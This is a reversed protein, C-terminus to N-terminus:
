QAARKAAREKAKEAAVLRQVETVVKGMSPRLAPDQDWMETMLDITESGWQRRLPGAPPRLQKVGVDHYIAHENQGEFPYRKVPQHWQLIEWFVLGVSYVDVKENYRPHPSWLEPAQWNVTGVLSRMMSKTSTKIRALGFDAIKPVGDGTILVNSSKIDRHIITPKRKHLYEIGRAIGLMLDLMASLPPAPVKRLYDFLDGNACLETVIMVPVASPQKPISVGIFKVINRHRLDRLLGLEKIDMDTLHGRIDCIAITRGDLVGKFVDKFGGSGVLELKTLEEPQIEKDRLQLSELDLANVDEQQENDKSHQKSQPKNPSALHEPRMLLPTGAATRASAHELGRLAQTKTENRATQTSLNSITSSSSLPSSVPSSMETSKNDRWNLLADVLQPKTRNEDDLLDREKCLRVLDDKKYRMLSTSTAQALDDDDDDNQDDDDADEVRFTADGDEEGSGAEGMQEDEDAGAAERLRVLRGGSKRPSGAQRLHSRAEVREEECSDEVGRETEGGSEEDADSSASEVEKATRASRRRGNSGGVKKLMRRPEVPHAVDNSGAGSGPGSTSLADDIMDDDEDEDSDTADGDVDVLKAVARRKAARLPRPSGSLLQLAGGQPQPSQPHPHAVHGHHRTRHAVPTAGTGGDGDPDVALALERASKARPSGSLGPGATSSRTRMNRMAGAPPLAPPPMEVQSARRTMRTSAAGAGSSTPASEDIETDDGSASGSSADGDRSDDSPPPTPDQGRVGSRRLVIRRRPARGRRAGLAKDAPSGEHSTRPHPSDAGDADDVDGGDSGSSHSHYRAEVIAQALEAKTRPVAHSSSTAPHALHYLDVLESKLLAELHHADWEHLKKDMDNGEAGDSADPSAGDGPEEDAAEGADSIDELVPRRRRLRSSRPEGSGDRGDGQEIDDGDLEQEDESGGETTAWSARRSRRLPADAGARGSSSTRRTVRGGTPQLPSATTRATASSEVLLMDADGDDAAREKGKTTRGVPQHREVSNNVPLPSLPQQTRAAGRSRSHQVVASAADEKGSRLATSRARSPGAAAAAGGVLAAHSNRRTSAARSSAGSGAAAAASPASRRGRRRSSATRQDQDREYEVLDEYDSDTREPADRDDGDSDLRHALSSSGTKLRKRARLIPRRAPSAYVATATRKTPM